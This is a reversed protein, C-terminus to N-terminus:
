GAYCIIDLALFIAQKSNSYTPLTFCKIANSHGLHRVALRGSRWKKIILSGQSIWMFDFIQEMTGYSGLNKAVSWFYNLMPGIEAENGISFAHFLEYIEAVTPLQSIYTLSNKSMKWLVEFILYKNERLNSVTEHNQLIILLRLSSVKQFAQPSIPKSSYSINQRPSTIKPGVNIIERVCHVIQFEYSNIGITSVKKYMVNLEKFLCGATPPDM